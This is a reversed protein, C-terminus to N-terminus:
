AVPRAALERIWEATERGRKRDAAVRARAAYIAERLSVVRRSDPGQVAEVAM